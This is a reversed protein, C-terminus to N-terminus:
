FGAPCSFPHKKLATRFKTFPGSKQWITEIGTSKKIEVAHNKNAFSCPMMKMDPTIYASMRAGECSDISLRNIGTVESNKFLHNALCSDMGVKFINRAKMIADSMVQIQYPNPFLEKCEAGKGQPKFLLFIVANLKEVDFLNRGMQKGHVWPNHGHTIEICKQFSSSTFMLHVNTKIGANIFEQIADYTYNNAYDSVAVAGCLKSIQVEKETLKQGSTTYNPVVNNKVCYELIRKFDKHKNPDGRGGLAVQNVHHKVEDIILKFDNFKMNPQEEDGQYCFSCRHECHGM